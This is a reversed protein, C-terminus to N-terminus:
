ARRLWHLIESLTPRKGTILIGLRFIKGAAWMMFISSGLLVAITGIIEWLPPMSIPIRLVMLTPTLLPFFSLIKIWIAEPNQLAVFAFAIPMVLIITLYQTFQQAEQETTLPAGVAVFIAAYFIYGLLFYVMILPLSSFSILTIGSQLSVAAGILFWFGIQTLGLASLGLIKGAMLDTASCSSVLIEIIRNSKEEIVSRVLIQGSTLILMMLMMIFLYATIFIQGFGSEEEAGSKSLKITKVEVSTSLKKVREPNMGEQILKKETVVERITSSFREIDRINGVNESRYEVFNSDVVNNGILLYGIIAENAVMENGYKKVDELTSFRPDAMNRLIYNPEGDPLKYKENLKKQLPLIFSSTQDIVGIVRSESDPRTALLTPLGGFVIMIVPFFFLGFLFTKTKVRELFEWRAVSWYKKM